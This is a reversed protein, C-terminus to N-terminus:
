RSQVDITAHVMDMGCSMVIEGPTAVVLPIEVPTGLPLDRDVRSGDPLAFHVDTACTKESRRTFVLTVAEGAGIAIRAPTYGGDTVEIAIRRAGDVPGATPKTAVLEEVAGALAVPPASREWLLAGDRGFVKVHPLTAEGLYHQSAASDNDELDYKRVVLDDPHRRAVEALERDLAHCPKCWSAWFDFVTIKGPVPVLPAVSGDAASVEAVDLGSWDAPPGPEDDHDHDHGTHDHDDDGEFLHVQTGVSLGVFVSSQLQGGDVRTYAPLKASLGVNWDDNLRYTLQAGALVDVRGTNGEDTHIMGHWREATEWQAEVTARFRFHTTGLASGVGLGGAYRDGAQYEHGNAYVSQITLAFADIRTSGLLRAADLGFVPEFTGTGFQSHEHPLGMDGLAFPDEVTRGLPITLGARAGLTFGGAAMAVRAIVLPDAVGVLTENHHHIFPDEIEVEHGTADLYRISTKFVRLPLVVGVALWRKVGLEASLRTESTLIDQDHIVTAPGGGVITETADHRAVATSGVSM